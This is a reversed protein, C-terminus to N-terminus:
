RPLVGGGGQGNEVAQGPPQLNRNRDIGALRVDGARGELVAGDQEVIDGGQRAGTRSIKGAGRNGQDHQHMADRMDEGLVVGPWRFWQRRAPRRHGSGSRSGARKMRSGPIPNPVVQGTIGGDEVVEREGPKGPPKRNENSQRALSDDAREVGAQVAIDGAGPHGKVEPFRRRGGAGAHRVNSGITAVLSNVQQLLQNQEARHLGWVVSGWQVMWSSYGDRGVLFGAQKPLHPFQAHIFGIELLLKDAAAAPRHHFGVLGRGGDTQLSLSVPIPALHALSRDCGMFRNRARRVTRVSQPSSRRRFDFFVAPALFDAALLASPGAPLRGQHHIIFFFCPRFLARPAARRVFVSGSPVASFTAQFQRLPAPRASDRAPLKKDRGPSSRGWTRAPAPSGSTAASRDDAQGINTRGKACLAAIVLAMGARIDPSTIHQARLRAPSSVLVRHPDCQVLTAGMELLGTWSICGAKSCNRSFSSAAAPRPPWCLRWASCIRRSPRGSATKWRSITGGTDQRIRLDQRAPLHLRGQNWRGRLAWGPFPGNCSGPAATPDPLDTVTLAGGTAAAAALFDASRSVYDPGVRHRAGGLRKVGEIEIRNTGLGSIRAGM